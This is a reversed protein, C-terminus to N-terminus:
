QERSFLSFLFSFVCDKSSFEKRKEPEREKQLLMDREKTLTTVSQSVTPIREYKSVCDEEYIRWKKTCFRYSVPHHMKLKVFGVEKSLQSIFIYLKVNKDEKLGYLHVAKFTKWKSNLIEAKKMKLWPGVMNIFKTIREVFQKSCGERFIKIKFM